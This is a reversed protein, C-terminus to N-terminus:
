VLRDFENNERCIIYRYKMYHHYWAVNHIVRRGSKNPCVNLKELQATRKFFFDLLFRSM